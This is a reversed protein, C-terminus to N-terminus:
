LSFYTMGMISYAAPSTIHHIIVESLPDLINNGQTERRQWDIISNSTDLVQEQHLIFRTLKRYAIIM